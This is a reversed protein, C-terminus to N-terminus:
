DKVIRFGVTGYCGLPPASHRNKPRKSAETSAWSGGRIVKEEGLSPGVPDSTPSSLYYDKAYWDACWEWVNGAMASLPTGEPDAKDTPETGAQAPISKVDEPLPRSGLLAAKEWEASTPLRGGAWNAYDTAGHWSVHPIPRTDFGSKARFRRKGVKMVPCDPSELNIRPLGDKTVAGEKNLYECYERVSVERKAIWFARLNVEHLPREDVRGQGEASGMEFLGAPILAM